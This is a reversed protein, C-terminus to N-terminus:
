RGGLKRVTAHFIAWLRKSGRRGKYDGWRMSPYVAMCYDFAEGKSM